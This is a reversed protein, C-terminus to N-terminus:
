AALLILENKRVEAQARAEQALARQEDAQARENEAVGKAVIIRRLSWVGGALLLLFAVCVVTVLAWSRKVWRYVLAGPSYRRASILQGAEFRRLDEAMQQATAYRDAPDRAMAKHVIHLLDEPVQPQREELPIPARRVGEDLIQAARRPAAGPTGG